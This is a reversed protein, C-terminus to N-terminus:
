QRANTPGRNRRDVVQIAHPYCSRARSLGFVVGLFKALAETLWFPILNARNTALSYIVYFIGSRLPSVLIGISAYKVGLRAHGLGHNFRQRVFASFTRRHYHYAVASSVGVTHGNRGLRLCVDLDESSEALYADFPHKLLLDKRFLAAGTGIRHMAGVRNFNLSFSADESRQWYSLNEASLVMAHIGAWNNRDLESRLKSVCGKSLIMDSDVFMVYTGRASEVGLQRSYGVSDMSPTLITAKYQRLIDLTGDTSMRDMALIEKPGEQLVSELCERITRASNKTPIVVSVDSNYERAMLQVQGKQFSSSTLFLARNVIEIARPDKVLM